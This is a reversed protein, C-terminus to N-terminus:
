SPPREVEDFWSAALRAFDAPREMPPLHAVDSWEVLRAASVEQVIRRATDRIAV